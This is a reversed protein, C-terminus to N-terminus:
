ETCETVRANCRTEARREMVKLRAASKIAKLDVSKPRLFVLLSCKARLRGLRALRPCGRIMECLECSM